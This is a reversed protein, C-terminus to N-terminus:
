QTESLVRLVEKADGPLLDRAYEFTDLSALCIFLAVFAISGITVISNIPRDWWLHMFFLCVLSAKVVAISLAIIVNGEHINHAAFDFRTVAVTIWTLILLALCNAVLIKLPAVHGVGHHGGHGHDSTSHQAM